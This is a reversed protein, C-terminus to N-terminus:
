NAHLFSKALCTTEGETSSDHVYVHYGQELELILPHCGGNTHSSRVSILKLVHEPVVESSPGFPFPHTCSPCYRCGHQPLSLLSIGQLDEPIDSSTILLLSHRWGVNSVCFCLWTTYGSSPIFITISTDTSDWFMSLTWVHSTTAVPSWVRCRKKRNRVDLLVGDKPFLTM